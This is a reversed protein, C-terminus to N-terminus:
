QRRLGTKGKDRSRLRSLGRRVGALAQELTQKGPVDYYQGRYVYTACWLRPREAERFRWLGIIHPEVDRPLNM